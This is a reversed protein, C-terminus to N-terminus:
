ETTTDFRANRMGGETEPAAGVASTAATDTLTATNIKKMTVTMSLGGMNPAEHVGNMREIVMGRYKAHYTYVDFPVRERWLVELEKFADVAQKGGGFANTQRVDVTLREPALIVHDTVISGDEIVHETVRSERAHDDKVHVNYRVPRGTAPIIIAFTRDAM